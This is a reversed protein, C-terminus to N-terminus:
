LIWNFWSGAACTVAGFVGVAMEIDQNNNLDVLKHSLACLVPSVLVFGVASLVLRLRKDMSCVALNRTIHMIM